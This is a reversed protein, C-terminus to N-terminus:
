PGKYTLKECYFANQGSDDFTLNPTVIRMVKSKCAQATRFIFGKPLVLETESEEGTVPNRFSELEVQLEGPVSFSSRKGDIKQKIEVFKPELFYKVTSRFIVFSGNGKAEGGFIKVLAGRQKADGEKSIYLQMTGDGNHIAKPWNIAEVVSLGDLRVSGYHGKEIRYLAIARCFGYTPLGSFNCPCGFDCNCTEIYKVEMEWPLITESARAEQVTKSM